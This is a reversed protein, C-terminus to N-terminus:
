EFKLTVTKSKDGCSRPQPAKGQIFVTYDGSTLTRKLKHNLYQQGILKRYGRPLKATGYKVGSFSTLTSKVKKIPAWGPRPEIGVSVYGGNNYDEARGRPKNFAKVPLKNLCNRLKVTDSGESFGCGQVEGKLVLTFKAPQMAQRLKITATDGWYLYKKRSTRKSTGLKTGSFDYLEVKWKHVGGTRNFIQVRMKKRYQSAFPRPFKTIPRIEKVKIGNCKKAHAVAPGNGTGSVGGMLLLLLALLLVIIAGAVPVRKARTAM